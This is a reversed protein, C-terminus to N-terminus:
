AAAHLFHKLANRAASHLMPGHAQGSLIQLSNDTHGSAQLAGHFRQAFPITSVGLERTAGPIAPLPRWREESGVLLHVPTSNGMELLPGPHRAQLLALMHPWYWWLSPSAAYIRNFLGPAALWSYLSFLGAYSHGFLAVPGSAASGSANLRPLVQLRLFVLLHDAGGCPWEAKRPDSHLGRPGSPTYDYARWPALISREAVRYGLSAVQVTGAQVTDLAADLTDDLWHGDLLLLTNLRAGVAINVPRWIRLRYERGADNALLHETTFFASM